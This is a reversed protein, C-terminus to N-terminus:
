SQGNSGEMVIKELLSFHREYIHASTPIFIHDGLMLGPYTDQLDSHMKQIVHHFWPVDNFTGYILDNSRMSTICHLENNRILFQQFNTCIFDSAGLSNWEYHISPRTYIVIAQRSSAQRKLTNLCNSYQSFNNRSFALNGYNSNIEYNSDAVDNWIAVDSVKAVNLEASKYWNLEKDVYSRPSKKCDFDVYLDSPDLIIRPAIVELIKVGSKDQIFTNTELQENLEKYVPFLRKANINM